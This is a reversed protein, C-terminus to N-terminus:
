HLYYDKGGTVIGRFKCLVLLIFKRNYSTLFRNNNIRSDIDPEDKPV